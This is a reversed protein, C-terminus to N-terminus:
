TLPCKKGEGEDNAITQGFSFDILTKLNVIYEGSASRKPLYRAVYWGDSQKLLQHMTPAIYDTRDGDPVCKFEGSKGLHMLLGALRGCEYASYERNQMKLATEIREKTVMHLPYKRIQHMEYRILLLWCVYILAPLILPVLTWRLDFQGLIQGNLFYFVIAVTSIVGLLTTIVFGRAVHLELRELSDPTWREGDSYFCPFSTQSAM